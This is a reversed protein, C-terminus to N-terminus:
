FMSSCIFPEINLMLVGSESFPASQAEAIWAHVHRDHVSSSQPRALAETSRAAAAM